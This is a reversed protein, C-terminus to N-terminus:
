AAAGARLIHDHVGIHRHDFGAALRVELVACEAEVSYGAVLTSRTRCSPSSTFSPSATSVAVSVGPWVLPQVVQVIFTVSAALGVVHDDDAARVDIGAVLEDVVRGIRPNRRVILVHECTSFDSGHSEKEPRM